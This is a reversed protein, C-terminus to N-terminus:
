VVDGPRAAWREKKGRMGVPSAIGVRKKSTVSDAAINSLMVAAADAYPVITEPVKAAFLPPLPLVLV